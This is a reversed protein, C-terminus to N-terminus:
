PADAERLVARLPRRRWAVGGVLAAASAAATAAAPAGLGLLLAAALAGAAVAELPARLGGLLQRVPIHSSLLVAGALCMAGQSVAMAAAAGTAGARPILLANLALNFAFAAGLVALFARDRGIMALSFVLAVSAFDFATAVLLLRLPAAAGAYAPGFLLEVVQPALLPGFAALPVAVLAVFRWFTALTAGLDGERSAAAVRPLFAASLSSSVVFAADVVRYAASYTGAAESGRWAGLLLLDASAIGQVLLFGVGLRAGGLAVVVRGPRPDRPARALLLPLLPALLWAALVVEGVLLSAVVPAPGGGRHVVAVAAGLCALQALVRGVAVPTQNQRAQYVWRAQFARAVPIGCALLLAVRTTASGALAAVAAALVAAFALAVAVRAALLSRLLRGAGTAPWPSLLRVGHTEMGRLLAADLYSVTALALAAAGFAGISATRVVYLTTAFGIAKAAVEAGALPAFNRLPSLRRVRREGVTPALATM